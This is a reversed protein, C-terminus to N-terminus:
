LTHLTARQQEEQTCVFNHAFSTLADTQCTSLIDHHFIFHSTLLRDNFTGTDPEGTRMVLRLLTGADAQIPGFVDKHFVLECAFCDHDFARTDPKRFWKVAGRLLVCCDRQLIILVHQQLVTRGTLAPNLSALVQNEQLGCPLNEAGAAAVSADFLGQHQLDIFVNPQQIDTSALDCHMATLPLDKWPWIILHEIAALLLSYFYIVLMCHQHAVCAAALQAKDSLLLQKHRSCILDNFFNSVQDPQCLMLSHNDFVFIPSELIVIPATGFPSRILRLREEQWRICFDLLYPPAAAWTTLSFVHRELTKVHSRVEHLKFEVASRRIINLQDELTDDKPLENIKRCHEGVCAVGTAVHDVVDSRLENQVHRSYGQLQKHVSHVVNGFCHHCLIGLEVRFAADLHM